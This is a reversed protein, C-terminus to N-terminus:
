FKALFLTALPFRPTPIYVAACISRGNQDPIVGEVSLLVSAKGLLTLSPFVGLSEKSVWQVQVRHREGSAM